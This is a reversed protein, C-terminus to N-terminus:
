VFPQSPVYFSMLRDQKSMWGLRAGGWAICFTIYLIPSSSYENIGEGLRKVVRDKYKEWGKVGGYPKDESGGCEV